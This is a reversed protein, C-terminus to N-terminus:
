GLAPVAPGELIEIRRIDRLDVPFDAANHGTQPDSINIGNLLIAIQDSTGGRISIDSQVGLGGRQRVDVGVATKLLDTVTSAPIAAIAASDLVSVIRASQGLEMLIRSGTVSVAELTYTTDPRQAAATVTMLLSLLLTALRM